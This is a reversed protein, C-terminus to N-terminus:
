LRSQRSPARARVWHIRGRWHHARINVVTRRRRNGVALFTVPVRQWPHPGTIMRTVLVEAAQYDSVTLRPRAHPRGAGGNRTRTGARIRDDPSEDFYVMTNGVIVPCRDATCFLETLDDYQGGGAKTAASETAIGAQNVATSRPSSCATADDLHGSLCIPVSQTQIRSRGWCWCKRVSLRAAAARAPDPRRVM